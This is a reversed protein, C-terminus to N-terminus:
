IDPVASHRRESRTLVGKRTAFPPLKREHLAKDSGPPIAAILRPSLSHSALFGRAGSIVDRITTEPRVTLYRVVATARDEESPM